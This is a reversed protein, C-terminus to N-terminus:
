ESGCHSMYLDEIETSSLGSFGSDGFATGNVRALFCERAADMLAATPPVYGVTVFLETNDLNDLYFNVFDDVTARDASALNTYFFLPRTIPYDFAGISDPSPLIGNCSGDGVTIEAVGEEERAANVEALISHDANPGITLSPDIAVSQVIDQNNQFFSFGFYTLERDASGAREALLQDDESAFYDERTIGNDGHLTETFFDFTGSTDAAGSLVIELNAFRSGLQTWNTIVGEALPHWLYALEGLTACAGGNAFINTNNSVAVTLGDFGVLSEIFEVGNAALAEVENSRMARSSNAIDSAAPIDRVGFLRIGESSGVSNVTIQVNEDVESAYRDAIESTLPAVTSSGQAIIVKSNPDTETLSPQSVSTAGVGGVVLGALAVAFIRRAQARM